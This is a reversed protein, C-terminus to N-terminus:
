KAASKTLMCVKPPPLKSKKKGNQNKTPNPSKAGGPKAKIEPPTNMRENKMAGTLM